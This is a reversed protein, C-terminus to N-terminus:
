KWSPLLAVADTKLQTFPCSITLNDSNAWAVGRISFLAHFLVSINDTPKAIAVTPLREISYFSNRM